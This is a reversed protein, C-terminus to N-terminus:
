RLGDVLSLGTSNFQAVPWPVTVRIAGCAEAGVQGQGLGIDLGQRTLAFNHYNEATPAFGQGSIQSSVSGFANYSGAVCVNTAVVHETVYSAIAELGQAPSDLLDVLEVPKGAPVPATFSMWGSGDNGGPYLELTPYMTSVVVTSASMLAPSFDIEYTGQYRSTDLSTGYEGREKQAYQEQDHLVQGRLAANVATLDVPGGSVQPYSGSTNYNPLELKPVAVSTVQLPRAATDWADAGVPTQRHAAVAGVSVVVAIVLASGASMVISRSSAM